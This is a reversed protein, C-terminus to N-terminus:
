QIILEVIIENKAVLFFRINAKLIHYVTLYRIICLSMNEMQECIFVDIVYDNGVMVNAKLIASTQKRVTFWHKDKNLLFVHKTLFIFISCSFM